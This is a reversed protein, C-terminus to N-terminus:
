APAELLKPIRILNYAIMRFTFFTNAKALGRVKLKAAGGITKAWGFAEEIRKRCRLSVAYGPHRTTRGDVSTKRVHGTKFVRGDIAIHPTVHRAKLSMVFSETDFLKDAALTIRRDHKRTRGVMELATDREATGTAHSVAADVILGNRNEMLAHGIYCLRSERGDGKRFLRADPDTTSAHTENSRKEKHFDREGNRGDTPPEGSGDKPRFSKMSAWADILTGDVSFHDSSLLRRVQPLGTLHTLFERAVDAEMLRERNKSFTSADWVRDDMTLGVFWRFLMNYDIQEMLQRESRVTFFAQLLTAKLLQEPPISPRGTHSYLAVFKASMAELVDEVLARIARLPHDASIREELRVYSFMGESRKEDGRM